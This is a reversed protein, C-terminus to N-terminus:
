RALLMNVDGGWERESGLIQLTIVGIGRREVKITEIAGLETRVRQAGEVIVIVVRAAASRWDRLVQAAAVRVRALYPLVMSTQIFIDVEIIVVPINSGVRKGEEM